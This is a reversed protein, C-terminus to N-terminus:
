KDMGELALTGQEQPGVTPHPRKAVWVDNCITFSTMTMKQSTKEDM